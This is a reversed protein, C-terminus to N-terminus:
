SGQSLQGTFIAGTTILFITALESNANARNNSVM